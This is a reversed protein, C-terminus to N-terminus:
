FKLGVGGYVGYRTGAAYVRVSKINICLIGGYDFGENKEKVYYSNTINGNSIRYNSGDTDGNKVSTYGIVPIISLWKTMPFQYGTHISVATKEDKHVDVDTSSEHARPWFLVDVYIGSITTNMGIAACSVDDYIGFAGGVLGITYGKNAKFGEKQLLQAHIGLSVMVMMMLACVKKM